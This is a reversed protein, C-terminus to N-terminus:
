LVTACLCLPSDGKVARESEPEKVMLKPCVFTLPCREKGTPGREKLLEMLLFLSEYKFFAPLRVTRGNPICWRPSPFPKIINNNLQIKDVMNEIYVIFAPTGEDIGLRFSRFVVDENQGLVVELLDLNDELKSSVRVEKLDEMKLEGTIVEHKNQAGEGPGETILREFYRKVMGFPM